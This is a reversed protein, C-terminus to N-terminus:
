FNLPDLTCFVPPTGFCYEWTTYSLAAEIDNYFDVHVVYTQSSWAGHSGCRCYYTSGMDYYYDGGRLNVLEENKMVREPNISLKGLKKM